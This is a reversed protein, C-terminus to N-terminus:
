FDVIFKSCEVSDIGLILYCCMIQIPLNSIKRVFRIWMTQFSSTNWWIFQIGHSHCSEIDSISALTNSKIVNGFLSSTHNVRYVLCHLCVLINHTLAIICFKIFISAAVVKWNGKAFMANLLNQFKFQFVSIFNEIFSSNQSWNDEMRLYFVFTEQKLRNCKEM